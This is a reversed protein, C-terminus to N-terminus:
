PIINGVMCDVRKGASNTAFMDAVIRIRMGDAHETMQTPLILVGAANAVPIASAFVPVSEVTNGATDTTLITAVTKVLTSNLPAVM